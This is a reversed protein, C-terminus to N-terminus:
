KEFINLYFSFRGIVEELKTTIPAFSDETDRDIVWSIFM